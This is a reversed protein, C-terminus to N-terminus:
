HRHRRNVVVVVVVAVVEFYGAPPETQARAKQLEINPRRNDIHPALLGAGFRRCFTCLRLFFGTGNANKKRYYHLMPSRGCVIM